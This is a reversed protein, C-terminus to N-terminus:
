WGITIIWACFYCSWCFYGTYRCYLCALRCWALEASSLGLGAAMQPVIASGGVLSSRGTTRYHAPTRYLSAEATFGPLTNM